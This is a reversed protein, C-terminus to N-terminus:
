PYGARIWDLIAFREAEMADYDIDHFEALLRNIGIEMSVTPAWGCPHACEHEDPEEDPEYYHVFTCLAVGRTRLWDVFAGQERSIDKIALMKDLNPTAPQTM